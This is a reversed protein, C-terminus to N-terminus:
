KLKVAKGSFSTTWNVEDGSSQVKFTYNTPSLFTNVTRTYVKKGNDMYDGLYYLEDGKYTVRISFPQMGPIGVLSLLYEDKEPVYSYISLNNTTSGARTVKQDAILFNGNVAWECTYVASTGSSGSSAGGAAATSDPDNEARWTGLFASLKKLGSDKLVRPKQGFATLQAFATISILLLLSRLHKLM